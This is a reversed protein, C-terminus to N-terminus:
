SGHEQLLDNIDTEQFSLDVRADGEVEAQVPSTASAATSSFWANYHALNVAPKVDQKAAEPAAGVLKDAGVGAGIGVAVAGAVPAVFLWKTAM